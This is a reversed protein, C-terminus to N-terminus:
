CMRMVLKGSYGGGVSNSLPFTQSLSVLAFLELAWIIIIIIIFSSPATFM